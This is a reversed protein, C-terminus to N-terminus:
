MTLMDALLYWITNQLLHCLVYGEWDKEVEMQRECKFVNIGRAGV